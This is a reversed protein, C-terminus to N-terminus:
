PTGFADCDVSHRGAFLDFPDQLTFEANEGRPAMGLESSSSLTQNLLTV